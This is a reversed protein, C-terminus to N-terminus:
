DPEVLGLRVLFNLVLYLITDPGIPQWYYCGIQRKCEENSIEGTANKIYIEMMDEIIKRAESEKVTM